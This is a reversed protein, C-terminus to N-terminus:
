NYDKKGESIKLNIVLKDDATEVSTTTETQNRKWAIQKTMYTHSSYIYAVQLPIYLIQRCIYINTQHLSRQNNFKITNFSIEVKYVRSTFHLYSIKSPIPGLRDMLELLTNAFQRAVKTKVFQGFFFNLFDLVKEKHFFFYLVKARDIYQDLRSDIM